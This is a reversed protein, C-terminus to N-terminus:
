GKHCPMSLLVRRALTRKRRPRIAKNLEDIVKVTEAALAQRLLADSVAPHLRPERQLSSSPHLGLTRWPRPYINDRFSEPNNPIDRTAIMAHLPRPMNVVNRCGALPHRRSPCAPSSTGPSTGRSSMQPPSARPTGEALFNAASERITTKDRKEIVIGVMLAHNRWVSCEHPRVDRRQVTVGVRASCCTQDRYGCLRYEVHSVITIASSPDEGCGSVLLM